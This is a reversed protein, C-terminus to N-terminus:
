LWGQRRYWQVTDRLGDALPVAARYGLERAAKAVACVWRGQYAERVKDRSLILPRGLLGSVVEAAAGACWGLLRPVRLSRVPRGLIEGLVALLESWECPPEGSIHYTQGAAQPSDAALVLGRVLDGVHVLSYTHERVSTLQLVWGRSASQIVLYFDTDRPGYVIPPRVITTPILGQARRVAQEAILKSQGYLSVPRLEADEALSGGDPSPGAAALSSVFLLRRLRCLGRQQAAICTQVLRATAESNGRRYEAPRRARTVGAVCYVVDIDALHATLEEPGTLDGQVLEVDLGDLYRLRSTRRVLCRVRDGRQTLHAALHSGIFGTAGTILVRESVDTLRGM